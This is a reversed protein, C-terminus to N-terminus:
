AIEGNKIWSKRLDEIPLSIDLILTRGPNEKPVPVYRESELIDRFSHTNDDYLVPFIRLILGRRCVYENRLARVALRFVAPDTAQNRIQWCPGWRVYAAGVGLVPTRVIRAQAAAVIKNAMRLVIHSINEEQM